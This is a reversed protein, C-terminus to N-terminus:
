APKPTLHPYKRNRFQIINNLYYNPLGNSPTITMLCKDTSHKLVVFPRFMNPKDCVRSRWQVHFIMPSQLFPIFSQAEYLFIQMLQQLHRMVPKPTLHPYKRNRIQMMNNTYDSPPNKNSLFTNLEYQSMIELQSICTTNM